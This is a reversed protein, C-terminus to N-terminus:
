CPNGEHLDNDSDHYTFFCGAVSFDESECTGDQEMGNPCRWITGLPEPRDSGMHYGFTDDYTLEEGCYPCEM